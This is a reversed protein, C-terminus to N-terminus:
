PLGGSITPRLAATESQPAGGGSSNKREDDTRPKWLEDLRVKIQQGTEDDLLGINEPTLEDSLSWAVIGIRLGEMEAAAVDVRQQVVPRGGEDNVQIRQLAASALQKREAFTLRAKLDVWNGDEFTLREVPAKRVLEM